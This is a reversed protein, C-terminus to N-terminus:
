NRSRLSLHPDGERWYFGGIEVSIQPRKKGRWKVSHHDEHDTIHHRLGPAARENNFSYYNLFEWTRIPVFELDLSGGLIAERVQVPSSTSNSDDPSLFLEVPKAEDCTPEGDQTQPDQKPDAQEQPPPYDGGSLGATGYYGGDAGDDGCAGTLAALCVATLASARGRVTGFGFKRNLLSHM